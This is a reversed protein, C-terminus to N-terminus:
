KSGPKKPKASVSQRLRKGTQSAGEYAYRAQLAEARLMRAVDDVLLVGGPAPASEFHGYDDQGRVLRVMTPHKRSQAMDPSIYRVALGIRRDSSTNASSAHFMRGHHLSFQGPKLEVNVAQTEDVEVAIEQGRSLLNHDSFTDRHEVISQQHSGAVFKMCGNEINADTLAIWATVENTNDLGWYTLDQHWSVFHSTQPEKVFLNAGWVLLNPGLIESVPDLISELRTVEDIFDVAINGYGRTPMAEVGHTAEMEELGSRHFRAQEAPMATLPFIFGDSEYRSKLDM